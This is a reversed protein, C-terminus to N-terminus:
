IFLHSSNGKYKLIIYVLVKKSNEEMNADSTVRKDSFISYCVKEIGRSLALLLVTMSYNLIKRSGVAVESENVM